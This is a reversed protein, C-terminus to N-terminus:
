AQRAHKKPISKCGKKGQGRGGLKLEKREQSKELKEQQVAQGYLSTHFTKQKPTDLAKAPVKKAEAVAERLNRIDKGGQKYRKPTIGSSGPEPDTKRPTSRERESASLKRKRKAPEPSGITSEKASTDGEEQINVQVEIPVRAEPSKPEYQVTEQSSWRSRSQREPTAQPRPVRDRMALLPTQEQTRDLGVAPNYIWGAAEQLEELNDVDVPMGGYKPTTYPSIPEFGEHPSPTCFTPTMPKLGQVVHPDVLVSDKMWRKVSDSLQSDSYGGAEDEEVEMDQETEVKEVVLVKEMPEKKCEQVVTRIAGALVDDLIGSVLAEVQETKLSDAWTKELNSMPSSETSATAKATEKKAAWQRRWEERKRFPNAPMRTKRVTFKLNPGKRCDLFIPKIIAIVIETKLCVGPM